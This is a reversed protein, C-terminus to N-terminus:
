EGFRNSCQLNVGSEFLKQIEEVKGTRLAQVVDLNYAAITEETPNVFELSALSDCKLMESCVFEAPDTLTIPLLLNEVDKSERKRKQGAKSEMVVAGMTPLQVM